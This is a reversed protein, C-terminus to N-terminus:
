QKTSLRPPTGLKATCGPFLSYRWEHASISQDLIMQEMIKVTLEYNKMLEMIDADTKGKPVLGYKEGYFRFTGPKFQHSYYSPTGDKDVKNIAQVNGRSECWELAGLWIRQQHTLPDIWVEKPLTPAVDSEATKAILLTVALAVAM